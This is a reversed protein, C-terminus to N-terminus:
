IPDMDMSPRIVCGAAKEKRNDFDVFRFSVLLSYQGKQVNPKRTNNVFKTDLRLHRRHNSQRRQTNLIVRSLFVLALLRDALFNSLLGFVKTTKRIDTAEGCL